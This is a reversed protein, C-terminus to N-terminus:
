KGTFVSAIPSHKLNIFKVHKVYPTDSTRVAGFCNRISCHFPFDELAGLRLYKQEFGNILSPAIISM